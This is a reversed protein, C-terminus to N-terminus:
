KVNRKWLKIINYIIESIPGIFFMSLCLITLITEM